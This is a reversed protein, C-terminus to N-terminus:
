LHLLFLESHLMGSQPSSTLVAEPITAVTMCIFSAFSGSLMNQTNKDKLCKMNLVKQNNGLSRSESSCMAFIFM